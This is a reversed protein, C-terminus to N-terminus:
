AAANVILNLDCDEDPAGSRRWDDVEQQTRRRGCWLCATADTSWFHKRATTGPQFRWDTEDFSIVIGSDALAQRVPMMAAASM